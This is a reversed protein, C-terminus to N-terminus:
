AELPHVTEDSQAKNVFDCFMAISGLHDMDFEEFDIEVDFNEEVRLIFHILQLSDLGADHIIDSDSDLRTLCAPDEKVESIMAIIQEVSVGSQQM